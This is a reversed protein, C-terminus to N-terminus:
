VSSTPSLLPMVTLLDFRSSSKILFGMKRDQRIPGSYLPVPVQQSFVAQTVLGVMTARFCPMERFEYSEGVLPIRTGQRHKLKLRDAEHCLGFGKDTSREDRTVFNFFFTLGQHSQRGANLASTIVTM